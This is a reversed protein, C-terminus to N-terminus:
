KLVVAKTVTSGDELTFTWNETTPTEKLPKWTNMWSIATKSSASRVFVNQSIPAVVLQVVYYAGVLNLLSGLYFISNGDKINASGAPNIDFVGTGLQSWYYPTDDALSPIPDTGKFMASNIAATIVKNQVPNESDLSLAADITIEDVEPIDVSDLVDQVMEAKDVETFYDTGKIPTHGDKGDDGDFEGSAKAQALATDIASQLDEQTIYDGEVDGAVFYPVEKFDGNETRVLLTTDGTSVNTKIWIKTNPNTPEAGGIHMVGRTAAPVADDLIEQKDNETYYDVGRVPTHGDFYDVGKKPTYGDKGDFYDVGKVPTDGKAGKLSALWETESGEFGNKVAVEYASIGDKGYVVGVGGRMSAGASLNGVLKNKNQVAGEV